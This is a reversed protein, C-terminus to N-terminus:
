FMIGMYWRLTQAASTDLAVGNLVAQQKQGEMYGLGGLPFLVGYQIMTYFGGMKDPNDNLSGDKAQYYVSLDLEVGLDRKHGPAQVFESARSWIVAAGGGVKQGNTNRIFDYDVSPRFYYAGQVRTLINRFLILDVRYDPHFRAMSFTRDTTTQPQLKSGKPSLSLPSGDEGIDPDGSAWGFGFQVKLKDEVAKYELQTAILYQRLKWGNPVGPKNSAYDSSTLGDTLTSDITGQVTLAEVEFRFKKYRIKAWLDPIFAQANRRGLGDRLKDYSQGPFQGDTGLQDNALYQSRYVAFLGGDVVVKGRALSQKAIDPNVRRVVTLVYQNVDDLQGLDYPQGQRENAAASTAGENPFDWAGAFYLDLSKIGTIFMIRDVNSQWDSDFGDGANALIGLGWQNAMRGFRLVGVPSTYEGYARKVRISDAFGNQGASPVDQTTAFGGLPVYPNANGNANGDPTTYRNAPTSGLVLNDLLDLQTVIRLNDSIHIEPDLRLRMNAGSQTKNDCNYNGSRTNLADTYCLGLNRINGRRDTYSKEIPHNWLSDNPDDARGLAFNHFLEARVRYYGHLELMPRAHSWWEDAYVDSPKGGIATSRPASPDPKDAAAPPPADGGKPMPKEEVLPAREPAVGTAPAAPPATTPAAPATAGTASPAPATSPATTSPSPAPQALATSSAAAIAAFSLTAALGPLSTRRRIPM